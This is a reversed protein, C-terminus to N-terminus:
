PAWQARYYRRAELAPLTLNTAASVLTSTQVPSWNMLDSSAQIAYRAGAQGELRLKFSAPTSLVPNNLMVPLVERALVVEGGNPVVDFMVYNTSGVYLMQAPVRQDNQSVAAGPWGAPLPRRLTIPYNFVASDLTNTVQLSIRDGDNGTEGVFAANREQIYRVVNGFTQVWFKNQNTSFYNVTQQLTASPLPSYGGDSDLGHILFVCWGKSSAASNALSTFNQLTQVSGASGCVYSSISMFNAPTSPMIQGSCTRAALYYQATLADNGEVCFPYALTVCRQTTVNANIADQSNKLEAVQQADTLGGLSVHTVTHSAVEHGRAAADQLTPWGAFLTGTCSFLTLKFGARNFMPIALVFQNSCSDDFTFSLAASRFAPWTGMEYPPSVAGALSFWTSLALTLCCGARTKVGTHERQAVLGLGQGYITGDMEDGM